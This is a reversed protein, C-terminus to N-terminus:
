RIRFPAWESALRGEWDKGTPGRRQTSQFSVSYAGAPPESGFPAQFREVLSGGPPITQRGTEGDDARPVPPPGLPVAKGAADRVRLVLSPFAFTRADLRVPEKGDNVITVTVDLDNGSAIEAAALKITVHMPSGKDADAAPARGGACALAIAGLALTV